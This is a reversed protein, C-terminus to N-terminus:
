DCPEFPVVDITVNGFWRNRLIEAVRENSVIYRYEFGCTRAIDLHNLVQKDLKDLVARSVAEGRAAGTLLAEYGCKCEYWTNGRLADIEAWRRTATGAGSEIHVRYSYPSGTAMHCYLASLPDDGLPAIPGTLRCGGRRGTQRARLRSRSLSPVRQSRRELAAAFVQLRTEGRPDLDRPITPIDWPAIFVMPGVPYTGRSAPQSEVLAIARNYLSVEPIYRDVIAELDAESNARGVEYEIADLVHLRRIRVQVSGGGGAGGLWSHTRTGHETIFTPARGGRELTAFPREQEIRIREAYGRIQGRRLAAELSTDFRSPAGLREPAPRVPPRRVLPGRKAVHPPVGTRQQITHALEHSLLLRGERTDPQYAGESFAVHQHYTFAQAGVRDAFEAARSGTHIRVQSLDAGFRSEFFRRTSTSIPRGAGMAEIDSRSVSLQGLQTAADSAHIKEDCHCGGACRQIQPTETGIRQRVVGTAGM